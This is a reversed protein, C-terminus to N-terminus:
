NPPSPWEIEAEDRREPGSTAAESISAAHRRRASRRLLVVVAAIAVLVAVVIAWTSHAALGLTTEWAAFGITTYITAWMASGVLAAPEFRWLPMRMVGCSVLVMSQFGVTLYCLAVGIVGWKAVFAEAGVMGPGTFKSSFRSRRGGEAIGRGMAYLANGRAMGGFLFFVWLAVFPLGAMWSGVAEVVSMSLTALTPM